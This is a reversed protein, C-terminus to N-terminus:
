LAEFFAILDEFYGQKYGEYPLGGDILCNKVLFTDLGLREAPVMDEKVDNGVMLCATPALHFLSLIERYYNENPKCYRSNQYHTVHDFDGPELGIWSLRAKQAEPPFVPNTALIVRDAKKKALEVAKKALPNPTSLQNITHFNGKYYLDFADLAVQDDIQLKPRAIKLFAEENTCSGDNKIMAVVGKKIVELLIGPDVGLRKSVEASEAAFLARMFLEQEMHLLTGDLDFLIAQYKKM